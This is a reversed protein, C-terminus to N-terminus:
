RALKRISYRAQGGSLHQILNTDAITGWISEFPNKKYITVCRVTRAQLEMPAGSVVGAALIDENGDQIHKPVPTFTSTATLM